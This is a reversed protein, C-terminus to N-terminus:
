KSGVIAIAVILVLLLISGTLHTITFGEEGEPYSLDYDEKDILNKPSM